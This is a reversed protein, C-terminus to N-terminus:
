VKRNDIDVKLINHYILITVDNSLEKDQSDTSSKMFVLVLLSIMIEFLNLTSRETVM